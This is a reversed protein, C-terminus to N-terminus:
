AHTTEGKDETSEAGQVPQQLLVILDDLQALRGRLWNAQGIVAELQAMIQARQAELIERNIGPNPRDAM